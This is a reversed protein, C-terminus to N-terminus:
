IKRYYPKYIKNQQPPQKNNEVSHSPRKILLFIFVLQTNFIKKAKFMYYM